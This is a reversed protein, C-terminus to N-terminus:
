LSDRRLAYLSANEGDENVFDMVKAFGNRELVKISGINHPDTIAQIKKDPCRDLIRNIQARVLKTAYGKGWYEPLLMYEIEMSGDENGSIGFMGIFTGDLLVKYYGAIGDTDNMGIIADFFFDAEERTFVRGMNMTMVAENFVLSAYLPADEARFKTLSLM